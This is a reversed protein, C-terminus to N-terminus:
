ECLDEIFLPIRRVSPDVCTIKSTSIDSGQKRRILVCASLCNCGIGALLSVFIPLSLATSFLPVYGLRKNYSVNAYPKRSVALPSFFVRPFCFSHFKKKM